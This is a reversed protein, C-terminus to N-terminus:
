LLDELVFEACRIGDVAASLIGGAYGAGEGCPYIGAVASRGRSDRTLRVPSSSRSEVGTLVADPRDFGHLQRGFIPLADKLSSAVFSPLCERLDTWTVGPLYSPQVEGVGTSARNALFDGVLQAPAHYDSGGLAYAAQEMKRQFAFGALPHDLGFDAPTVGVLLASNSNVADRAHESMGNVAVGGEESAAAIVVGGPCMCFTYVGRGGDPTCSLKYDAAGLAPHGAAPGYQSKDIMTRPHEIRVGVAFPKQEMPLGHSFLMEATDRASHGIAFIAHSCPIEITGDDTEVILASLCGSEIMMEVVQHHFHVQGGLRLIENRLGRVTDQLKDTGIHPKAQWLIEAPAGAEVFTELVRRSRPDKIGSNLKGDSFTGAGGEGFQVNSATDLVGTRRFTDVAQRRSDVDGGRELLIPRAGAQALTLAAFLGAPGSGVVVPPVAPATSLTSIVYPTDTVRSVKGSKECRRLLNAENDVAVDVTANFHVDNKKRADVSRKRLALSHIAKPSVGLRDAACRRLDDETYSLPLSIGTIRLM